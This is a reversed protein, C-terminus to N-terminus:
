NSPAPAAPNRPDRAAPTPNDGTSSLQAQDVVATVVGVVAILGAVIVILM